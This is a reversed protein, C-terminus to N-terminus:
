RVAQDRAQQRRHVDPDAIEMFREPAGLARFGLKEYLGRASTSALMWRRLDQLEPHALVCRMLWMSLGLGRHSELM